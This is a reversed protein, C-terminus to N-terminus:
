ITELVGVSVWGVRGDELVVEAWEESLRDIRVKTGEHVTFVTLAEDDLPASKVDVQTQLVVAEQARGVDSERIALNLGFVLFVAGCALAIRPGWVSVAAGRNLILLLLVGTGLLYSAAVVVILLTRPLLDVWWEVASFLWFRPLPEIEDVTLSRALDLNAQVDADVPLLRHAREYYLISQALDGLKFYTNGLNYYVEGSEFGAEVLRLYSALAGEFDGEQYQRNGEQYFEVQAVEPRLTGSVAIGPVVAAAMVAFVIARM